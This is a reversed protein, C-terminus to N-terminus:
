GVSWAHTRPKPDQKMSTNDSEGKLIAQKRREYLAVNSSTKPLVSYNLDLEALLKVIKAQLRIQPKVKPEVQPKLEADEVVVAKEVPKEDIVKKAKKNDELVATEVTETLVVDEAPTEDIAKKKRRAM